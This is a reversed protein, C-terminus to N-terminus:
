APLLMEKILNKLKVESDRRFELFKCRLFSRNQSEDYRVDLVGIRNSISSHDPLLMQCDSIIESGTMLKELNGKFSIKAGSESMDVVSGQHYVGFEAFSTVPIDEIDTFNIRIAKRLQKFRIVEPYEFEVFKPADTSGEGRAPSNMTAEFIVSIGGSNARFLIQNGRSLDLSNLSDPRVTFTRSNADIGLLKTSQSDLHNKVISMYYLPWQHIHATHLIDHIQAREVIEESHGGDDSM